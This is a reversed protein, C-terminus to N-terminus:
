RNKREIQITHIAGCWLEVRLLGSEKMYRQLVQYVAYLKSQVGRSVIDDLPEDKM